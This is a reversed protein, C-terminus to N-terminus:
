VSSQRSEQNQCAKVIVEANTYEIAHLAAAGLSTLEYFYEIHDKEVFRFIGANKLINFQYSGNVETFIGNDIMDRRSFREKEGAFVIAMIRQESSLAKFVDVLQTRKEQENNIM